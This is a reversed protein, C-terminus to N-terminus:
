FCLNGERNPSKVTGLMYFISLLTKALHLFVQTAVSPGDAKPVKLPAALHQYNWEILLGSPM